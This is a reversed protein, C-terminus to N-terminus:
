LIIIFFHIIAEIGCYYQWFLTYACVIGIVAFCRQKWTWQDILLVGIAYIWSLWYLPQLLMMLIVWLRPPLRWAAFMGLM